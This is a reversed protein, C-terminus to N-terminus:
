LDIEELNYQIKGLGTKLEEIRYANGYWEPLM